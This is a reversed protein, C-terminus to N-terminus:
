CIEFHPYQARPNTMHLMLCGFLPASKAPDPLSLLHLQLLYIDRVCILTLIVRWSFMSKMLHSALTFTRLTTHTSRLIQWLFKSFPPFLVLITCLDLCPYSAPLRTSITSKLTAQSTQQVVCPISPYIELHPYVPPDVDHPSFFFNFLYNSLSM